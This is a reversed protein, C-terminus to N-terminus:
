TRKTSVMTFPTTVDQPIQALQVLRRCDYRDALAGATVGFLLMPLWHSVMAYGGLAPSHFKQFVVWYSIVHEVSDAMMAVASTLFYNLFGRDHLAAFSRASVNTASSSAPIEADLSTVVTAHPFSFHGCRHPCPFPRNTMGM